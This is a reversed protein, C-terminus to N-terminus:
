DDSHEEPVIPYYAMLTQGYAILRRAAEEPSLIGQEIEM